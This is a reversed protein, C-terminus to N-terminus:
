CPLAYSHTISILSSLYTPMLYVIFIQDRYIGGESGRGREKCRGKNRGKDSNEKEGKRRGKKRWKM